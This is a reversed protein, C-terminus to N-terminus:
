NQKIKNYKVHLDAVESAHSGSISEIFLEIFVAYSIFPNLSYNISTIQITPLAFKEWAIKQTVGM